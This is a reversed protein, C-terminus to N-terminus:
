FRENVLVVNPDLNRKTMFPSTKTMNCNYSEMKMQLNPGEEIFNTPSMSSDTPNIFSPSEMTLYSTMKSFDQM